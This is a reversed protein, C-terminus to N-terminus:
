PRILANLTYALSTIDVPAATDVRVTAGLSLPAANDSWDKWPARAEIGMPHIVHRIRAEYRNWALQPSVECWVEIVQPQGSKAIGGLVFDIDRPGFWWSEVIVTGAIEASLEWMTESAIQGLRTSSVHGQAIEAFVEKLVDKSVVPVSLATSLQKSLTSKGSAPLGNILILTEAMDSLRGWRM